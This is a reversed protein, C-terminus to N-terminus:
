ASHAIENTASFWSYLSTAHPTPTNARTTVYLEPCLFLRALVRRATDHAANARGTPAPSPQLEARHSSPEAPAREVQALPFVKCSHIHIMPTLWSSWT